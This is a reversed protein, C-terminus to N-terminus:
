RIVDEPLESVRDHNPYSLNFLVYEDRAKDMDNAQVLRLIEEIWLNASQRFKAPESLESIEVQEPLLTNAASKSAKTAFADEDIGAAQDILAKEAVSHEVRPAVASRVAFEPSVSPASPEDSSEMEAVTKTTAEDKSDNVRDTLAEYAVENPVENTIVENATSPATALTGSSSAASSDAALDPARSNESPATQIAALEKETPNLSSEPSSIIMPVLIVGLVVVAAASLGQAWSPSWHTSEKQGPIEQHVADHAANLIAQDLSPPISVHVDNFLAHMDEDNLAATTKKSTSM